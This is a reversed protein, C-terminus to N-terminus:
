YKMYFDKDESFIQLICNIKQTDSLSESNVVEKISKLNM